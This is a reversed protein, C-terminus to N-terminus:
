MPRISRRFEKLRTITSEVCSSHAMSTDEYMSFTLSVHLFPLFFYCSHHQRPFDRQLVLTCIYLYDDTQAHERMYLIKLRHTMAESSLYAATAEHAQFGGTHKM